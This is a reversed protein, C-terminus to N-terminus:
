KREGRKKLERLHAAERISRKSTRSRDVTDEEEESTCTLTVLTTNRKEEEVVVTKVPSSYCEKTAGFRLSYKGAPLNNFTHPTKGTFNRGGGVPSLRFRLPSPDSTVGLSGVRALAYQVVFRYTDNAYIHFSYQNTTATNIMEGGRYVLIKANMGNPPTVSLTTPGFESLGISFRNKVIGPDASSISDGNASLLTWSGTRSAGIQEISISALVAASSPVPALFAVSSLLLTFVSFRAIM